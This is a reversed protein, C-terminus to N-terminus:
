EALFFTGQEDKSGTVTGGLASNGDLLKARTKHVAIDGHAAFGQAGNGAAKGGIVTPAM